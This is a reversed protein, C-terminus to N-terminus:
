RRAAKVANILKALELVAADVARQLAEANEANKVAAYREALQRVGPAGTDPNGVILPKVRADAVKLAEKVEAPTTPLAALNAAEHVVAAYHEAVVYATDSVSDAAKYAAKTGACGSVGACTIAVFAALVFALVAAGPRFFGGQRSPIKGEAVLRAETNAAAQTMNPAPKRLRTWITWIAVLGGFGAFVVGFLPDLEEATTKAGFLGAVVLVIQVLQQRIIASKYWPIAEM